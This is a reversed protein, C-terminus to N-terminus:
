RAQRMLWAVGMAIWLLFAIPWIPAVLIIRAAERRSHRDDAHTFALALAALAAMCAAVAGYVTALTALTSM